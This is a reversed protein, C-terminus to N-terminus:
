GARRSALASGSRVMLAALEAVDARSDLGLSRLRGPDGVFRPAAPMAALRPDIDVVLDVGLESAMADLLARLEIGVGSCVNLASPWEELDLLRVFADTVFDLPVYDRVVDLRGCRVHREGGTGALLQTRMNGLALTAPLDPSVINFPRLVCARIGARAAHELVLRSQEVKARGYETVPRLPHEEAVRDTVPDGYEAASGAALVAPPSSMRGIAELLHRTTVVNALHLKRADGTASGVLHVVVAPAVQELVSGVQDPDLLDARVAAASGAARSTGTADVGLAHLRDLLARGLLGTAGTVLV